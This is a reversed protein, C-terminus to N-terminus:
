ERESERELLFHIGKEEEKRERTETGLILLETIWKGNEERGKEKKDESPKPTFLRNGTEEGERGLVRWELAQLLSLSIYYLFLINNLIFFLISFSLLKGSVLRRLSFSIGLEIGIERERLFLRNGPEKINTRERKVYCKGKEGISRFCKRPNLTVLFLFIFPFTLRSSAIPM